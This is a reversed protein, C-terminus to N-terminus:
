GEARRAPPDADQASAAALPLNIFFSTGQGDASEVTIFGGSEIVIRHAIPLGLGTGKDKTTFFPNFIAERMDPAIGQGTDRVEIQWFSGLDQDVRRTEIAVHGGQPTAQIANLVINILVQMIQDPDAVITPTQGSPRRTLEVQQTRAQPVLLTVTREVMEDLDVDGVVPTPSKAFTLLESILNGIRQVETEALRLFSTMFEEDGLRQPALQFFTQISVLPNRIEHAIGAALTGLASLRGARNIIDRSRRLEDYLRANEFAISAQTALNTLIDLDGAVFAQLDRKRGLGVFGILSAGSVLPVCVEWHNRRVITTCTDVGTEALLVEERLVPEGRQTLMRVFPHDPAFTAPVPAPGLMRQLEFEGRADERLFLAVRELRLVESLTDCLERVLRQRDLIRVVSRAFTNLLTRTEQKRPFLSREVSQEARARAFPFLVGVALLLALMGASFDYHVEGFALHQMALSLVFAPGVLLVIVGLYAIGKSVAVEIDMLRHRVIAYAVIGAWAASGLNGLPYIPVGYVALTNTLGLPLAVGMGFLWFKLQLRMRPDSTTRFEYILLAFAAAFNIIVMVTFADYLWTGVSYYGWAVPRLDRVVLDLANAGVLVASLAYDVILANWIWRSRPREPTAIILHVIGPFLFIAGSRIPRSLAFALEHDPVSYLVVYILNWFTLCIASFAFVQRLETRPGSRNVFVGLALSAIAAALPILWHNTM